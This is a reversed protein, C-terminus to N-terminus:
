LLDVDTLVEWSVLLGPAERIVAKGGPHENEKTPGWKKKKKKKGKLCQLERLNVM